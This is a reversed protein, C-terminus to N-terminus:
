EGYEGFLNVSFDRQEKELEDQIQNARKVKRKLNVALLKQEELDPLPIVLSLLKEISIRPMVSGRKFHELQMLVPKSSLVLALYDPDVKPSIISFLYYNSSVLAGDLEKPVVGVAGKDAELSSIIIQGNRALYRTNKMSFLKGIYEDKREVVGLGKSKVTLQKYNRDDVVKVIQRDHVLVDKLQCTPYKSGMRERSLLLNVNWVEENLLRFYKSDKICATKEGTIVGRLSLATQIIENESADSKILTALCVDTVPEETKKLFMVNYSRKNSDGYYALEEFRTISLIQANEFLWKRSDKRSDSMLLEDSVVLAAVGNIKLMKLIQGIIIDEQIRPFIRDVNGFRKQAVSFAKHRMPLHSAVAEYPGEMFVVAKEMIDRCEVIGESLGHMIMQLNAINAMRQNIDYGKVKIYEKNRKITELLLGGLGCCPDAFSERQEMDLATVIYECLLIPSSYESLYGSFHKQLFESFATVEEHIDSGFLNVNSLEEIVRLFSNKSLHSQEWGKFAYLPVYLEAYKQYVYKVDVDGWLSGEAMVDLPRDKVQEYCWKLLQVKCLEEISAELSLRDISRIIKLSQELSQFYQQKGMEMTKM